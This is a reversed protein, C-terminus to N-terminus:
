QEESGGAVFGGFIQAVDAHAGLSEMHALLRGHIERTRELVEDEGLLGRDVLLRIMALNLAVCTAMWRMVSRQDDAQRSQITDFESGMVETIVRGLKDVEARLRQIEPDLEKM